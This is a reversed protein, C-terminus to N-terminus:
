RMPSKAPTLNIPRFHPNGMSYFRFREPEVFRAIGRWDQKPDMIVIRLRKGTSTRRANALERIFRMAAVTKGSRSQGTFVGHMLEDIKIRYDFQSKYGNKYTYYETRIQTGMYIEGRLLGPLRFQPIDDIATDIGGGSVRPLHSYAVFENPLLVTAYKYDSIGAINERSVDASFATFHYLLHQQEEDSLELVQLPQVMAYENQWTAKAAAQATALADMSDCAIYVYTYFAGNGRLAKKYRENQYELLELIDKVEQDLWQYSKSYGISPGIGMAGSSGMTVAGTNGLSTGKSTGESEGM